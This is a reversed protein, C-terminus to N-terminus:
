RPQGYYAGAGHKRRFHRELLEPAIPRLEPVLLLSSVAMSAVAELASANEVADAEDTGWTFPGHSRVLVAPMELPDLGLGEITEVIV